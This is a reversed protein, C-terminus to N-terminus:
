NFRLKKWRDTNRLPQFGQFTGHYFGAWAEPLSLDDAEKLLKALFSRKLTGDTTM